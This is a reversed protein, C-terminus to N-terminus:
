AYKESEKFEPLPFISDFDYIASLEKMVQKERRRMRRKKEPVLDDEGSAHLMGHVVYLVLESAYTRDPKDCQFLAQAPCVIIDVSSSDEDQIEGPVLADKYDFTIVDTMGEHGVFDMNIRAMKRASEFYINVPSAILAQLGSFKLADDLLKELMKRNPKGTKLNWRFKTMKM